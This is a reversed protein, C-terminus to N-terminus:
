QKDLESFNDEPIERWHTAKTLIELELQPYTLSFYAIEFYGAPEGKVEFDGCRDPLREEVPIWRLKERLTALQQKLLVNENGIM